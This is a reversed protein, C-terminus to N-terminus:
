VRGSCLEVNVVVDLFVHRNDFRSVSDDTYMAKASAAWIMSSTHDSIKTESSTIEVLSARSNVLLRAFGDLSSSRSWLSHFQHTVNYM